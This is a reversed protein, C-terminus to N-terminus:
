DSRLRRPVFRGCKVTSFTGPQAADVAQAIVPINPMLTPWHNTSLVLVAFTRGALQRQNIMQKDDTVLVEFGAGKLSLWCAGM